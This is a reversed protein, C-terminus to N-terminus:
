IFQYKPSETTIGHSDQVKPYDLVLCVNYLLLCFSLAFVYSKMVFVQYFLGYIHSMAVFNHFFTLDHLLNPPGLFCDCTSIQRWGEDLGVQWIPFVLSMTGKVHLVKMFPVVLSVLSMTLKENGIMWQNEQSLSQLTFIKLHSM